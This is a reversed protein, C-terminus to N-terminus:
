TSLMKKINKWNCNVVDVIAVVISFLGIIKISGKSFVLEFLRVSFLSMTRPGMLTYNVMWLDKQTISKSQTDHKKKGSFWFSNRSDRPSAQQPPAHSDQSDAPCRTCSPAQTASCWLKETVGCRFPKRNWSVSAFMSQQQIWYTVNIIM